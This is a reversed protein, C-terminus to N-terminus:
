KGSEKNNCDRGSTTFRHDKFFRRKRNKSETTLVLPHEYYQKISEIKDLFISFEGGDEDLLKTFISPSDFKPV